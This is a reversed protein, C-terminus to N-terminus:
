SEEFGLVAREQGDRGISLVPRRRGDGRARSGEGQVEENWRNKKFLSSHCPRVYVVVPAAFAGGDWSGHWLSLSDMVPVVAALHNGFEGGLVVM